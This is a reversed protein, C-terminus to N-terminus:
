NMGPMNQRHGLSLSFAPLQIARQVTAIRFNKLIIIFIVNQTCIPSKPSVAAVLLLSIHDSKRPLMVQGQCHQSNPSGGAGASASARWTLATLGADTSVCGQTSKVGQEAKKPCM